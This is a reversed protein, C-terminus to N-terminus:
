GTLNSYEEVKEDFQKTPGSCDAHLAPSTGIRAIHCQRQTRGAAGRVLRGCPGMLPVLFEVSKPGLLAITPRAKSALAQFGATPGSSRAFLESYTSSCENDVTAIADPHALTALRIFDIPFM